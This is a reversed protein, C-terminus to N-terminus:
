TVFEGIRRNMEWQKDAGSGFASANLDLEAKWEDPRARMRQEYLEREKQDTKTMTTEKERSYM